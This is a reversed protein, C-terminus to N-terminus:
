ISIVIKGQGSRAECAEHARSAEALPFVEAIPLRFAGQEFLDGAIALAHWARGESGDTVRAGHKAADFNAISVVQQPDDVLSVLEDIDTKGAVDFVGDLADLLPRVRDGIGPGYPLTSAGLAAVRDRNGVSATGVVVAGRSIAIQVAALGVGGSAGDILLKTGAGVGLLDLARVATEAPTVYCAAEEFSLDQPKRAWSQLLAYEAAGGAVAAGYVADGVAVDDVGDGLADVVGSVDSAITRPLPIDYGGERWECDFPNVAVNAVAVRIQGPGPTPVPVNVSTLVEPGGFRVVQVARM